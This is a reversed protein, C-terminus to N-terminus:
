YGAQELLHMTTVTSGTYATYVKGLERFAAEVSENDMALDGKFYALLKRLFRARHKGNATSLIGRARRLQRTASAAKNKGHLRKGPLEMAMEQFIRKDKLDHAQMLSIPYLLYDPLGMRSFMVPLAEADEACQDGGLFVKLVEEARNGFDAFLAKLQEQLKLLSARERKREELLSTLEIFPKSEYGAAIALALLAGFREEDTKVTNAVTM